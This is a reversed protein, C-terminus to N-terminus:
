NKILIYEVGELTFELEGDDIEAYITLGGSFSLIIEEDESTKSWTGTQSVGFTTFVVKDDDQISLKISDKTLKMGNFEEGLNYRTGSVEIAKLNYEGKVRTCGILVFCSTCIVISLLLTILKKMDLEKEIM